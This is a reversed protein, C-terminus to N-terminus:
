TGKIKKEIGVHIKTIKLINSIINNSKKEATFSTSTGLTFGEESTRMNLAKNKINLINGTVPATAPLITDIVSIFFMESIIAINKITIVPIERLKNHSKM